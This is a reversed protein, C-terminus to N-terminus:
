HQGAYIIIVGAKNVGAKLNHNHLVREITETKAQEDSLEKPLVILFELKPAQLTKWLSEGLTGDETVLSLTKPSLRALETPKKIFTIKQNNETASYGYASAILNLTEVGSCSFRAWIVDSERNVEAIPIVGWKQLFATYLEKPKANLLLVPFVNTILDTRQLGNGNPMVQEIPTKATNQTPAPPKSKHTLTWVLLVLLLIIATIIIARIM